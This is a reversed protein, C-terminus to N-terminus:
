DEFRFRVQRFFHCPLQQGQMIVEQGDVWAQQVSIGHVHLRMDQYPFDYTGQQKWTLELDQQNRILYFQDLRSEGYGDGADSYLCGESEGEIPPYLHLTLQEKDEMPLISGARVLLPIQELSAELEIVTGGEVIADDWFNYWYGKPLCILRSREKPHMIPCVLLANGLCFADDVDWLSQNTWDLWFLPRVPPYGKERAEWALTYFYPMLQYRLQLFRRMISLYPEGYTWPARPLVSIACHTRYFMSFTAMQFWRLYLEADPNGLFGGIDSGSYPIGSLGLGVITAM